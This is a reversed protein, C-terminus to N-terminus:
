AQMISCTDILGHDSDKVRTLVWTCHSWLKGIKCMYFYVPYRELRDGRLAAFSYSAFFFSCSQLELVIGM